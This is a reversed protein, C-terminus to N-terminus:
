FDELRKRGYFDCISSVLWLPYSNEASFDPPPIKGKKRWHCLTTRSIGLLKALETGKLYVKGAM